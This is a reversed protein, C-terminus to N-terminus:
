SMLSMLSEKVLLLEFCLNTSSLSLFSFKEALEFLVLAHM